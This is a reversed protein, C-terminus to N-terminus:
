MRATRAELAVVDEGREVRDSWETEKAPPAVGREGRDCRLGGSGRSAFGGPIASALREDVQGCCSGMGLSALLAGFEAGVALSSPLGVAAGIAAGTATVVVVGIRLGIAVGIAVGIVVGRPASESCARGGVAFLSGLLPPRQRTCGERFGRM